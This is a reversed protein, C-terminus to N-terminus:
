YLILTFFQITRFLFFLRLLFFYFETIIGLNAKNANEINIASEQLLVFNGNIM